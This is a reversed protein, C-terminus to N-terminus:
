ILYRKQFINFSNGLFYVNNAILFDSVLIKNVYNFKLSKLNKFPFIGYSVKDPFIFLSNKFDYTTTKLFSLKDTDSILLNFVKSQFHFFLERYVTSIFKKNLFKRIFRPQPGFAVAGGRRLPTRNTGRRASGTGKQKYPKKGGGSVSSRNKFSAKIERNNKIQYQHLLYLNHFFVDESKESTKFDLLNSVIEM